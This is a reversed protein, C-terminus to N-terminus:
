MERNGIRICRRVKWTGASLLSSIGNYHVESTITQVWWTTIFKNNTILQIPNKEGRTLEKEKGKM